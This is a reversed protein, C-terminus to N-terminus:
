MTRSIVRTFVNTSSSSERGMNRCCILKSYVIFSPSVVGKKWGGSYESGGSFVYSGVRLDTLETATVSLNQHKIHDLIGDQLIQKWHAIEDPELSLLFSHSPGIVRLAKEQKCEEVWVLSLPWNNEPRIFNEPKRLKSRSVCVLIDIFMILHRLGHKQKEKKKVIVKFIGESVLRRHPALILKLDMQEALEAMNRDTESARVSENLHTAVKKVSELAKELNGYDPHAPPTNKLIDTLLMSYRPVRQIPMILLHHLAVSEGAELNKTEVADRFGTNEKMEKQYLHIATEYNTGYAAYLKLFPAMAMFIDGLLTNDDWKAARQQVQQLLDSNLQLIQEVNGFISRVEKQVRKDSHSRLPEYFHHVLVNLSRVYSEESSVVEQVLKTRHSAKESSPISITVASVSEQLVHRAQPQATTDVTPAGPAVSGRVKISANSSDTFSPVERPKSPPPPPPRRPSAIGLVDTGIVEGSM